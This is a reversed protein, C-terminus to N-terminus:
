LTEGRHGICFLYQRFEPGVSEVLYRIQALFGYNSLLTHTTQVHRWYGNLVVLLFLGVTFFHLYFSFLLGAVAFLGCLVVIAVNAMRSMKELDVSLSASKM